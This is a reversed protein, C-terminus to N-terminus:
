LITRNVVNGDEDKMEALLKEIRNEIYKDVDKIGYNLQKITNDSIQNLTESKVTDSLTLLEEKTIKNDKIMELLKPKITNEVSIINTKLLNDLGDIAENFLKRDEESQIKEVKQKATKSLKNLYYTAYIGMIMLVGNLITVLLGNLNNQLENM